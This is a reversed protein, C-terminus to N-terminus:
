AAAETDVPEDLELLWHVSRRLIERHVLHDMSRHDHGLLDVVVRSDTDLERAWLLPHDAGGHASTALPDVDLALDLFGYVEDIIQFDSLGRTIEHRDTAVSVNIPTDDLPPHSSREWNWRAGLLEGWRPWDDFCIMATHVALISRGLSVHDEVARKALDDLSRAWEVRVTDYRSATMTWWLADVALLEHDLRALDNPEDIVDVDLGAGELVAVLEVCGQDFGHSIGGSVVLARDDPLFGGFGVEGDAHM